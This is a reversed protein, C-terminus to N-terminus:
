NRSPAKFVYAYVTKSFDMETSLIRRNERVRVLHHDYYSGSQKYTVYPTATYLSQTRANCLLPDPARTRTEDRRNWLHTDGAEFDLYSQYLSLLTLGWCM